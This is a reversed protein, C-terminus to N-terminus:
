GGELLKRCYEAASPSDELPAWPAFEKDSAAQWPGPKVEFCVARDTRPLITHWVGPPLDVGWVRGEATEAGLSHRATIVGRDDFLIVEAIGELVLFTEAKPPDSHRHPRIYTGRLLVNLFRHPNDEASAHFNHNMRRRPSALARDAVTEFLGSSILKVESM